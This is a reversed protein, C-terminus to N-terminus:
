SILSRLPPPCTVGTDGIAIGTGFFCPILWNICWFKKLKEFYYHNLLGTLTLQYFPKTIAYLKNGVINRSCISQVTSWICQLIFHSPNEVGCMLLLERAMCSVNYFMAKPPCFSILIFRSSLLLLWHATIRPDLTNGVLENFYVFFAISQPMIVNLDNEIYTYLNTRHRYNKAIKNWLLESFIASYFVFKCSWKIVLQTLFIQIM